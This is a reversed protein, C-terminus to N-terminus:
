TSMFISPWLNIRCRTAGGAAFSLRPRKPRRTRTAALPAGRIVVALTNAASSSTGQTMQEVHAEQDRTGPFRVGFVRSRVLPKGIRFRKRRARDAFHAKQSDAKSRGKTGIKVVRDRRQPCNDRHARVSEQAVFRARARQRSDAGALVHSICVENIQCTAM